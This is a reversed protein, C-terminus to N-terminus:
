IKCRSLRGLVSRPYMNLVRGLAVFDRTHTQINLTHTHTFTDAFSFPLMLPLMAPSEDFHVPIAVQESPWGRNM